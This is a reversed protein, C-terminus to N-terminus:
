PSMYDLVTRMQLMEEEVIVRDTSADNEINAILMFTPSFHNCCQCTNIYRQGSNSTIYSTPCWFCSKHLLFELKQKSGCNDAPFLVQTSNTYDNNNNNNNNNNSAACSNNDDVLNHTSSTGTQQFM